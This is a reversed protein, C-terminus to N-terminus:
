LTPSGGRRTRLMTPRWWARRGPCRAISATGPRSCTGVGRGAARSGSHCILRCGCRSTAARAEAVHGADDVIQWTAEVRGYDFVPECVVEMEVRGELCEAVRVLMHEADDDAPPRTHPTVSDPGKTPGMTLADRVVVWGSPTRWTTSMVNTGPEYTRSTPVNIGFPGFRFTGAERDLLSGFVSASDFRPVCLWDVAGDPAVLAGTHCDSLFAYEAIPPFPSPLAASTVEASDARAADGRKTRTMRPKRTAM